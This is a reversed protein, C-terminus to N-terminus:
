RYFQQQARGVFMNRKLFAFRIEVVSIVLEHM